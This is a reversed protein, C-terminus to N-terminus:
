TPSFRVLYYFEYVARPLDLRFPLDHEGPAFADHLCQQLITIYQDNRLTAGNDHHM